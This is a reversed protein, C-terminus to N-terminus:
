ELRAVRLREGGCYDLQQLAGLAPRRELRVRAGEHLVLTVPATRNGAIPAHVGSQYLLTLRSHSPASSRGPPVAAAERPRYPSGSAAVPGAASGPPRPRQFRGFWGPM